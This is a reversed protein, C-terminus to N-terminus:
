IRAFVFLFTDVEGLRRVLGELRLECLRNCSGAGLRFSNVFVFFGGSAEPANVFFGGVDIGFHSVEFLAYEAGGEHPDPQLLLFDCCDVFEDVVGAVLAASCFGNGNVTGPAAGEEVVDTFFEVRLERFGRQFVYEWANLSSKGGGRFSVPALRIPPLIEVAVKFFAGVPEEALFDNQFQAPWVSIFGVCSLSSPGDDVMGVHPVEICPLNQQLSSRKESTSAVEGGWGGIIDVVELPM